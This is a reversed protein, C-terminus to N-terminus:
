GHIARRDVALAAEKVTESLTPHAHVMRGLDESSARMEMAVVAEAILESAGPGVIHVGLIEDTDAHALIKVFGEESAMSKARGNAKFYFRGARYPTDTQKLQEETRGVQALEPHTYVVAPITDPRVHGPKGALTEVLAVGEESAKHALMAGGIVDGLAYIGRVSTAFLGDVQIRGRADTEVGVDELGLGQTYPRRGVAVLVRDAELIEVQEKRDKVSVRVPAGDIEAGTVQAELRLDLGLGKLGRRLMKATQSDATPVVQPMMEVVTVRAGLRRWVSGLELGIAGAGVVVLHEPVADFSLAETSSVVREGDFPLHPLEVPVSGTALLIANAQIEEPAGGEVPTALVRDTGVLRGTARLVTVKNKKMLLGIGGTLEQVIREKRAMMRALDLRVGDVSVGHDALDGSLAHFRESSELLAKSPICGINLCTGGLREGPDLLVVKSGLQAARIAAVYGGPGGGVIVLDFSKM